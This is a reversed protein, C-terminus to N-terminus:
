YYNEMRDAQIVKRIFKTPDGAIEQAKVQHKKQLHIEQISSTGARQYGTYLMGTYSQLCPVAEKPIEEVIKCSRSTWETGAIHYINWNQIEDQRYKYLNTLTRYTTFRKRIQDFDVIWEGLPQKLTNQRKRTINALFKFWISWKTHDPKSQNVQSGPTM